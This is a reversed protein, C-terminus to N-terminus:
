AKSKQPSKIRRINGPARLSEMSKVMEINCLPIPFIKKALRTLKQNGKKLFEFDDLNSCGVCYVENANPKKELKVIADWRFVFIVAMVGPLMLWPM